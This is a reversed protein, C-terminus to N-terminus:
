RQGHADEAVLLNEIERNSLSPHLTGTARRIVPLPSRQRRLQPAPRRSLGRQLLETVLEMVKIGRTASEAELARYLPDPLDFTTRM